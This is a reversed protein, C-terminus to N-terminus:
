ALHYVDSSAARHLAGRVKHMTKSGMRAGSILGAVSMAAQKGTETQLASFIALCCIGLFIFMASLCKLLFSSEPIEEPKTVTPSTHLISTSVSDNSKDTNEQSTDSFKATSLRAHKLDSTRTFKPTNSSAKNRHLPEKVAKVVPNITNSAGNSTTISQQNQQSKKREKLLSKEHWSLKEGEVQKREAHGIVERDNKDHLHMNTVATVASLLTRAPTSASETKQELSATHNTVLKATDVTTINEVFMASSAPQQTDTAASDTNENTIGGNGTTTTTNGGFGINPSILTFQAPQAIVDTIFSSLVESGPELLSVKRRKTAEQTAADEEDVVQELSSITAQKSSDSRSLLM